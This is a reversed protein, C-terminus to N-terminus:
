KLRLLELYEEEVPHPKAPIIICFPPKGLKGSKELEKIKGYTVKEDPEGLRSLVVASEFGSLMKLATQAEMPAPETDLLVLTHTNLSLNQKIIDLSSSPKYNPRPNVLTATKGFRYIQLGARGPAAAYVSSNHIVRTEVGKRKADILLTIHTTATLPDGPVVLATAGKKAAELILKEGEVEERPLIQVKRGIKAGLREFAGERALNTYQEAFVFVCSRLIEMGRASIDNEDCLGLGVLFLQGKPKGKRM